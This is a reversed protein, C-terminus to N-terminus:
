AADRTQPASTETEPNLWVPGAPQWNRTKGSWREPNQARAKAYLIARSALTAHDRGTHRADPTVFRIASHLHEGNYWTAFSKVWAQAEARTAFGKGPWDPRYKCTRFLAESFPNDNSVRPRSYSATIGLKEMTVKMTAGKMPSGNDAHLVLPRLACGEAMVAQRILMAALDASEREHVEWGVIKRSFIDVILYLYFFVGAVPGPMWTIDWTWVECPASAKYSAPPKRRVPPRARGRHHQQGSNRLIRYFSSESALYRGQDALKPVIQSPPLSAFERSNCAELVTARETASLKNAPAPRAVLPRQDPQVAGGKTWRRLTRDSIDLEACANTRRAGATVAADILAVATQRDPTSIMRGRRGGLNAQAKKRLVLLAATEALAKEKRALDQELKRVRKRDEKTAQGLRAASARDWDNAQECAARWAAIQAPYLGRERCYGALDVENLAATELVAAFKDRSSWGEPGADADPLLQGKGRAEARWKHLTAESIGEEQSLQRIAMTNPPLM